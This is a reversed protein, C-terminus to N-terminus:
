NTNCSGSSDDNIKVWKKTRFKSPHNPTNDLLNIMKQYEM